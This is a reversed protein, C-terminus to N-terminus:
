DLASQMNCRMDAVQIMVKADIAYIKEARVFTPKPPILM